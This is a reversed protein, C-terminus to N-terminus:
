RYEGDIWDIIEGTEGFDNTDDNTSRTNDKEVMDVENDGLACKETRMDNDADENEDYDCNEYETNKLADDKGDMDNYDSEIDNDAKPNEDLNYIEIKMEVSEDEVLHHLDNDETKLVVEEVPNLIQQRFKCDSNICLQQFSYSSILKDVCTECILNSLDMGEEKIKIQPAIGNLMDLIATNEEVYDDIQYYKSDMDM